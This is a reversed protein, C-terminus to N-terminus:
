RTNPCRLHAGFIGDESSIICCIICIVKLYECASLFMPEGLEEILAARMDPRNTEHLYLGREETECNASLGDHYHVRPDLLSEAEASLQQGEQQRHWSDLSPLLLQQQQPALACDGQWGFLLRMDMESCHLDCEAARVQVPWPQLSKQWSSSSAESFRPEPLLSMMQQSIETHQRERLALSQDRSM